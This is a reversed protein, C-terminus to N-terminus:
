ASPGVSGLDGPTSRQDARLQDSNILLQARAVAKAQKEQVQALANKFYLVTGRRQAIKQDILYKSLGELDPPATFAQWNGAQLLWRRGAATKKLFTIWPPSPVPLVTVPRGTLIADSLASVSDGTLFCSHAERLWQDYPNARGRAALWDYVELDPGLKAALHAVAGKPTRPSSILSIQHTGESVALKAFSDLYDTTIRASRSDGGLLLLRRFGNESPNSRGFPLALRMFNDQGDFGYQATAFVLDFHALNARPRGLWILRTAGDSAKAIWRAASVNRRGIGIVIDPWPPEFPCQGRMSRLSPGLFVNPCRRLVNHRVIFEKSTAESNSAMLIDSLTRVQSDDGARGTLLLWIRKRAAQMM